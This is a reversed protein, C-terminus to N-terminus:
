GCEGSTTNAELSEATDASTNPAPRTLGNLWRTIYNFKRERRLRIYAGDLNLTLKARWINAEIDAIEDELWRRNIKGTVPEAEDIGQIICRAVAAGGEALEEALKGLVKLRTPDTEPHWPSPDPIPGNTDM